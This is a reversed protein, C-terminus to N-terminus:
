FMHDPSRNSSNIFLYFITLLNYVYFSDLPDHYGYREKRRRRAEGKERSEGRGREARTRRGRRSIEGGKREKGEERKKERTDEEALWDYGTGEAAWFSQRGQLRLAGLCLEGMM